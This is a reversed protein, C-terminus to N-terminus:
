EKRIFRLGRNIRNLFIIFKRFLLPTFMKTM